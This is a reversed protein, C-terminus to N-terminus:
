LFSIYSVKTTLETLSIIDELSITVTGMSECFVM